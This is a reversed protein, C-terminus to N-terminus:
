CGGMGACDCPAPDAAAIARALLREQTDARWASSRVAQIELDTAGALTWLDAVSGDFALRGQHLLLVRDALQEIEEFRHSAFLVTTDEPARAVGAFFDRRASPDLSATPEDLLLISAESGLALALLLKQLMGGSLSSMYKDAVQAMSLGLDDLVGLLSDAELGRVGTMLEVFESVTLDFAPIRQPVYGIRRRAESGEHSRCAELGDITLVGDFAVLGLLCRLLTTKGAGNLGILAVRQGAPIDFSLGDLVVHEGYAKKLDRAVIM